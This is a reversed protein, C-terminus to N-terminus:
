GGMRERLDTFWNTVIVVPIVPVNLDEDTGSETGVFIFSAGDPDVDWNASRRSGITTLWRDEFMMEPAGVEIAGDTTVSARWISGAARFYM